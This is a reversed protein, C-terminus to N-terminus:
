HQRPPRQITTKENELHEEMVIRLRRIQSLSLNDLENKRYILLFYCTRTTESLFYIIRGGGRKGSGKTGIRVKRLGGGGVLLAGLYPNKALAAQTAALDDDTVIDAAQSTFVSTEIFLM